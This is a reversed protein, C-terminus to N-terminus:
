QRTIFTTNISPANSYGALIFTLGDLSKRLTQVRYSLTSTQTTISFLGDATGSIASTYPWAETSMPSSFSGLITNITYPCLQYRCIWSALLHGVEVLRSSNATKESGIIEPLRQLLFQHLKTVVCLSVRCQLWVHQKIWLGPYDSTSTQIITESDKRSQGNLAAMRSPLTVRIHRIYRLGYIIEFLTLLLEFKQSTKAQNFSDM